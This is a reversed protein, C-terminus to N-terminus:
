NQVRPRRPPGRHDRAQRHARHGGARDPRPRLGRSKAGSRAPQVADRGGPGADVRVDTRGRRELRCDRPLQRDRVASGHLDSLNDSMVSATITDVARVGSALLQRPAKLMVWPAVIPARASHAAMSRACRSGASISSTMMPHAFGSPAVPRFMARCIAMRAPQGTVVEPMVTLRKQEDPRCVMAIAECRTILPSPSTNAAPPTSDIEHTCFSIFLCMSFSSHIRWCLGSSYQGISCVASYTDFFYLM